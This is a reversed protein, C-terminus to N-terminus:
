CLFEVFGRLVGFGNVIKDNVMSGGFARDYFTLRRVCQGPFDAAVQHGLFDLADFSLQWGYAPVTTQM